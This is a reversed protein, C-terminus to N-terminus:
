LVAEKRWAFVRRESPRFILVDVLSMVVTFCLTWAIVKDPRLLRFFLELQGGIGNPLSLAEIIVVIKWSMAFGFRVGSFLSPALQPVILHRYRQTDSWRYVVSMDFLDPNLSKVGEYVINIVFPTVAVWLAVLLTLEELGLLLISFLIVVPGPLALAVMVWPLALAEFLKSRGMFIGILAGTVFASVTGIVVRRSTALLHSYFEPNTWASFFEEVVALPTPLFGRLPITLPWWIALIIVLAVLPPVIRARWRGVLTPSDIDVRSEEPRLDVAM